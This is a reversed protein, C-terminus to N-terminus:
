HCAGVGHSYLPAYGDLSIVYTQGNTGGGGGGGGGCVCM